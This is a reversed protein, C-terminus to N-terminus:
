LYKEEPEWPNGVFYEYIQDFEDDTSDEDIDMEFEHVLNPDMADVQSCHLYTPDGIDLNLIEAYEADSLFNKTIHYLPVLYYSPKLECLNTIENPNYAYICYLKGITEKFKQDTLYSTEDLAILKYKNM